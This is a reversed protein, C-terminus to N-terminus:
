LAAQVGKKPTLRLDENMHIFIGISGPLYLVMYRIEGLVQYWKRSQDASPPLPHRVFNRQLLLIPPPAPVADHQNKRVGLWHSGTHYVM